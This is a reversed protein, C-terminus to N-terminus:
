GKSVRDAIIKGEPMKVDKDSLNGPIVEEAEMIIIFPAGWLHMEIRLPWSKIKPLVRNSAYTRYSHFNQPDISVADTYYLIRKIEQEPDNGTWTVAKVGKCPYGCITQMRDLSELSVLSDDYGKDFSRLLSDGTVSLHYVTQEKTNFYETVLPIARIVWKYDGNKYCFESSRGFMDKIATTDLEDSLFRFHHVYRIRGEFEGATQAAAALGLLFLGATVLYKVRLKKM